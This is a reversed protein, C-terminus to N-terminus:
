IQEFEGASASVRGCKSLSTQVREFECLSACVKEFDSFSARARTHENPKTKTKNDVM